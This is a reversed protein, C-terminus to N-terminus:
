HSIPSKDVANVGYVRKLQKHINTVSVKGAVLFETIVWQKFRVDGYRVKKVVGQVHM